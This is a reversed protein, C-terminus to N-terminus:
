PGLRHVARAVREKGSGSEGEILVGFPASAAREVSRRLETMAATVGLFDAGAAAASSERRLLVASLIPAAAAAAMELVQGARTLDYSSGLMWRACLVGIVGGGYQVPVAAEIRDEYRRPGL